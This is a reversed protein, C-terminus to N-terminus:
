GFVIWIDIRFYGKRSHIGSAVLHRANDCNVFNYAGRLPLRNDVRLQNALDTKASLPLAALGLPPAVQVVAIPLAPSSAQRSRQLASAWILAFALSTSALHSAVTAARM